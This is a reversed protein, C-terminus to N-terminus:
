LCPGNILEGDFYSSELPDGQVVAKDSHRQLAVKLAIALKEVSDSM